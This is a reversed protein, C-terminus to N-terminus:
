HTYKNYSIQQIYIPNSTINNFRCKKCCNTKYKRRVLLNVSQVSLADFLRVDLIPM